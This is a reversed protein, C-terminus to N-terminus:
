KWLKAFVLINDNWNYVRLLVLEEYISPGREKDEKVSGRCSNCRELQTDLSVIGILVM